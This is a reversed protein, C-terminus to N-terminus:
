CVWSPYWEAHHENFFEERRGTCTTLLPQGFVPFFCRYSMMLYTIHSSPCNMIIWNIWVMRMDACYLLPLALLQNDWCLMFVLALHIAIRAPFPSKGNQISTTKCSSGTLFYDLMYGGGSCGCRGNKCNTCHQMCCALWHATSTSTPPTQGAVIPCLWALQEGM